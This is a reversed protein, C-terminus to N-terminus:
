RVRAREYWVTASMMAPRKVPEGALWHVDLVPPVHSVVNVGIVHITTEPVNYLQSLLTKFKEYNSSGGRKELFDAM